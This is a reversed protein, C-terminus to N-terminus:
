VVHASDSQDQPLPMRRWGPQPPALGCVKELLLTLLTIDFQSSDTLCNSPFLLDYQDQYITKKKLLNSFKTHHLSLQQYLKSPDTSYYQHFKRCLTETAKEMQLRLRLGNEEEKSCISAMPFVLIFIVITKEGKCNEQKM